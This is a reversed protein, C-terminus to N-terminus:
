VRGEQPGLSVGVQGLGLLALLVSQQQQQQQQQRLPCSCCCATQLALVSPAMAHAPSVFAAPGPLMHHTRLSNYSVILKCSLQLFCAACGVSGALTGPHSQATFIAKVAAGAKHTSHFVSDKVQCGIKSQVLKVLKQPQQVSWRNAPVTKAADNFPVCTATLHRSSSGSFLV